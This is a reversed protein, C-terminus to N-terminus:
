RRRKRTAAAPHRAVNLLLGVATLTVLMSTGGYSMFPLAVGTVPLIGVVAGINVFAQLVIWATIGVAVCAGFLSDARAAVWLGLVGFTVYAGVVVLAGVLGMEEGVIAFIFDTHAFPLFGWKARSSGLGVGFIGGAALGVQSQILQYGARQPDAWPDLFSSLRARRYGSGLSAALFVVTGIGGWLALSLRPVGVLILVIMATAAVIILDGLDRQALLLVGLVGVVLMIPRVSVRADGLHEENRALWYAMFVVLALKTFETPQIQLSGVGIWRTAGNASVGVGPVHVVLLGVACAVIAPVALRRLADLRVHLMAFAGIGGLLTWAVQRIFYTWASGTADLSMVSSSSLVMVLGIITIVLVVATLWVSLATATGPLDFVRAVIRRRPARVRPDDLHVRRESRPTRITTM